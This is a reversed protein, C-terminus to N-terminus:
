RIDCFSIDVVKKVSWRFYHKIWGLAPFKMVDFLAVDNLGIPFSFTQTNSTEHVHLAQNVHKGVDTLAGSMM